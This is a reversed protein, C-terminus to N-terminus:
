QWSQELLVLPLPLQKQSNSFLRFILPQSSFGQGKKSAKKLLHRDKKLAKKAPNRYM